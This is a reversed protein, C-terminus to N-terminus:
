ATGLLERYIKYDLDKFVNFVVEMGSENRHLFEKVAAVAIEAAERNPFRFEGTSICCFAVSKLNKEEALKLCSRYCNQLAECNEEKLSEHVIPGVTHIVYRSPLNYAGTIKAQGTLEEYWQVLMLLNCEDRLQLGAASHIANDICGHCPYFCGLLASNAANVIADAAIRTIDGQWLYVGPIATVPLEEITVIGKEKNEASLLDNQLTLFEKNLPMPSRVNMLSRLLRRQNIEDDQFKGAESCYQPSEALLMQNLKKIIDLRTM